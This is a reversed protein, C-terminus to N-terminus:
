KSDLFALLAEECARSNDRWVFHSAREIVVRQHTAPPLLADLERDIFEGFETTMSGSLVLTPVDFGRIRSKNIPPFCRESLLLAKLEASRSRCRMASTPWMWKSSNGDVFFFDLLTEVAREDEGLEFAERMPQLMEDDVRSKLRQVSFARDAPAEDLWPLIPPETVTLSRVRDPHDLAYLLAAYAGFSHGVLHVDDLEMGDIFRRLDDAYTQVSTPLLGPDPDLPHSYHRGYSISRYGTDIPLHLGWDQYDCPAGAVFVVPEGRQDQEGIELSLLSVGPRGKVEVEKFMLEVDGQACGALSAFVMMLGLFRFCAARPPDYM